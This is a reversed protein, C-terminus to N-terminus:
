PKGLAVIRPVGRDAGASAPPEGLVVLTVGFATVQRASSYM